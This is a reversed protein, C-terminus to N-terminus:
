FLRKRDTDVIDHHLICYGLVGHSSCVTTKHIDLVIDFVNGQYIQLLALIYDNIDRFLYYNGVYNDEERRLPM